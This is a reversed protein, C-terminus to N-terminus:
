PRSGHGGQQGCRAGVTHGGDGGGSMGVDKILLLRFVHSKQTAVSAFVSGPTACLQLNCGRSAATAVAVGARVPTPSLAQGSCPRAVAQWGGTSVEIIASATQLLGVHIPM